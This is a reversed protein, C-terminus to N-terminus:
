LSAEPKLITWSGQSVVRGEGNCSVSRFRLSSHAGLADVESLRARTYVYEGICVPAFWEFEQALHILPGKGEVAEIVTGWIAPAAYVAAMMPPAAMGECLVTSDEGVAGVYASVLGMTLHVEHDESWTGPETM